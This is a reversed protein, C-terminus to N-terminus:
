AGRQQTWRPTHLSLKAFVELAEVQENSLSVHEGRSHRVVRYAEPLPVGLRILVACGVMASRGRGERCHVLVPGQENQQDLIWDTLELLTAQDTAEGDVIPLHRFTMNLSKLTETDDMTQSRLDVVCRVGATHIAQWEHRWPQPSIALHYTLWYLPTSDKLGKLRRLANFVM